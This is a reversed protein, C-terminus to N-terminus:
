DHWPGRHFHAPKGGLRVQRLRLQQTREREILLQKKLHRNKWFGYVLLTAPVLELAVTTPILWPNDQVLERLNAQHKAAISDTSRKFGM